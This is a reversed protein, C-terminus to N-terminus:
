AKEKGVESRVRAVSGNWGCPVAFLLMPEDWALYNALGPVDLAELRFRLSHNAVV